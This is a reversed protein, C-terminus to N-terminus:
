RASLAAGFACERKMFGAAFTPLQWDPPPQGLHRMVTERRLECGKHPM